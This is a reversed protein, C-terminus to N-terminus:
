KLSVNTRLGNPLHSFGYKIEEILAQAHISLEPQKRNTLIGIAPFINLDTIPIVKTRAIPPQNAIQTFISIGLNQQVYYKHTSSSSLMIQRYSSGIKRQLQQEVQIRIPCNAPTFIFRQDKLDSLSVENRESLPNAESVLLVLRDYYFPCYDNDLKIEPKGCVAFDIGGKEILASCNNADDVYIEIEAESYKKLFTELIEPFMLSATPESVGVRITRIRGSKIKEIETNFEQYDRLLKGSYEYFFKGSNTLEISRNSKNRKLLRTGLEKELQKIRFTITPQSYNLAEAAKQFSGFKIVSHFTRISRIEM